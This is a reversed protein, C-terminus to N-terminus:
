LASFHAGLLLMLRGGSFALDAKQEGFTPDQTSGQFLDASYYQYALGVHGGLTPVFNYGVRVGGTVNYGFTSADNSEYADLGNSKKFDDSLPILTLGGEAFVSLSVHPVPIFGEVLLNADLQSGYEFTTSSENQYELTNFYRLSLGAGVFPGLNFTGYVNVGISSNDDLEVSTPEADMGGLSSTGETTSTGSAVVNLDVGTRFFAHADSAPALLLAAACPLAAFLFALPRRLM